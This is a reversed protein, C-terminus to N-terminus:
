TTAQHIKDKWELTLTLFVVTVASLHINVFTVNDCVISRIKILKIYKLHKLVIIISCVKTFKLNRGNLRIFRQIGSIPRYRANLACTAHILWTTSEVEMRPNRVGTVFESRNFFKADVIWLEFKQFSIM